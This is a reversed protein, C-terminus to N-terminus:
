IKSYLLVIDIDPLKPKCLWLWKKLYTSIGFDIPYYHLVGSNIDKMLKHYKKEILHISSPPLIMLLQLETSIKIDPYLDNYEINIRFDNNYKQEEETIITYNLSQLYNSLDLITPSYQYRYYWTKHYDQHYYYDLTFELSELFNHCVDKIEHGSTTDFLYYYYKSRWDNNIGAKIKDNKKNLIPYQELKYDYKKIIDNKDFAKSFPRFNDYEITANKMEEDEIHSLENIFKSLFMYNIRYQNENKILINQNLYECIKKYIELLIELSNNRFKMFTLNVIFDNGILFCLFVYYDILNESNKFYVSYNQKLINKFHPISLFIFNENSKLKFFIPERLLHINKNQLLSLMILDADLGHIINEKDNEVNEKIYKFIKFEGEGEELSNSLIVEISKYKQSKKFHIKLALSLKNMFNTGPSIASSDWENKIKNIITEDIKDKELNEILKNKKWNGMFRRYRQQVMKSRPPIGDISIYFLSSPKIFDFIEDTYKIVEKILATEFELNNKFNYESSKLKNSCNHICGNFDLFLNDFNINLFSKTKIIDPFDDIIKKFYSPIGM